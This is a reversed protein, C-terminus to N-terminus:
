LSKLRRVVLEALQRAMENRQMEEEHEKALLVSPDFTYSRRLELAQTSVVEKGARDISYDITYFIEYEQPTNSGSVSLVRRGTRDKTVRIVVDAVGASPALTAGSRGIDRQLQAAFPSFEDPVALYVSHVGEPLSVAGQLHFGCGALLAAAALLALAGRRAVRRAESSSTPSSAPCM